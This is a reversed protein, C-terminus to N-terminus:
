LCLYINDIGEYKILFYSDKLSARDLLVQVQNGETLHLHAIRLSSGCINVIDETVFDFLYGLKVSCLLGDEVNHWNHYELTLNIKQGQKAELIWPYETSGCGTQQSIISALYGPKTGVTVLASRTCTQSKPKFASFSFCFNTM